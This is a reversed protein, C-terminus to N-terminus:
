GQALERQLLKHLSEPSDLDLDTVQWSSPLLIFPDTQHGGLGGHSSIQEEMVVIRQRDALWAGNIVLDGCDGYGMLQALEGAWREKDRFSGLPDNEEGVEGTILNRVGGDCLAVADGFRRSAAV